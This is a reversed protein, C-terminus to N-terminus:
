VKRRLVPCWDACEETRVIAGKQDLIAICPYDPYLRRCRERNDARAAIDAADDEEDDDNDPEAPFPLPEQVPVPQPEMPDSM